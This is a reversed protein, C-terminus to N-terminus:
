HLALGCDLLLLHPHHSLAAVIQLRDDREELALVEADRELERVVAGGLGGAGGTSGIARRREYDTRRDEGSAQRGRWEAPAPRAGIWLGGAGMSPSLPLCASCVGSRCSPGPGSPPRARPPCPLPPPTTPRARSPPRAEAVGAAPKPTPSLASRPSAM